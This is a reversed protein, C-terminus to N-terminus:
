GALFTLGAEMWGLSRDMPLRGSKNGNLFGIAPEQERRLRSTTGTFQAHFSVRVGSIQLDTQFIIWPCAMLSCGDVLAELVSSVVGLFLVM